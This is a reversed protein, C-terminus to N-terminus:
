DHVQGGTQLDMQHLLDMWDWEMQGLFDHTGDEDFDRVVALLKCDYKKMDALTPLPIFCIQDQWIPDMTDAAHPTQHIKKGCWFVDM